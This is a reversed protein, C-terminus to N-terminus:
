HAPSAARLPRSPSVLRLGVPRLAGRVADADLELSECIRAFSHVNKMDNSLLWAIESRLRSRGLGDYAHRYKKLCRVADQLVAIMLRHEPTTERDITLHEMRPARPRQYADCPVDPTSPDSVLPSTAIASNM